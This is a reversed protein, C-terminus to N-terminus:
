NLMTSTSVGEGRDSELQQNTYEDITKYESIMDVRECSIIFSLLLVIFTARM